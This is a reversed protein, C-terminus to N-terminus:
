QGLSSWNEKPIQAAKLLLHTSAKPDLGELAEAGVTGYQACESVRSTMLIMGNTGSPFYDQYDFTPDDANDLILLWRKNTNALLQLPDPLKDVSSGITKAINIFSSETTSPSSADVWFVGWFRTRNATPYDSTLFSAWKERVFNAVQLCIESKGQGGMGTIVFIRQTNKNGSSQSLLAKEITELLETRGTFLSNVTRPINWHM